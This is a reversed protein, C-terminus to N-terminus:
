DPHPFLFSIDFRMIQCMTVVTVFCLIVGMILKTRLLFFIIIPHIHKSFNNEESSCDKTSHFTKESLISQIGVPLRSRSNNVIHRKSSYIPGIKSSIVKEVFGLVQGNFIEKNAEKHSNSIVSSNNTEKCLILHCFSGDSNRKM